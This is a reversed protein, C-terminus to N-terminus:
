VKIKHDKCFKSIEGPEALKLLGDRGAKFHDVEPSIVMHM